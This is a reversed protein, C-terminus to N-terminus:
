DFYCNALFLILIGYSCNLDRRICTSINLVFKVQCLGKQGMPSMPCGCDSHSEMKEQEQSNPKKKRKM